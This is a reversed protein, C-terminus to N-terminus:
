IVEFSIIKEFAVYETSAQTGIKKSLGYAHTDTSAHGNYWKVFAAIEDASLQYDHDSSDILTVRLLKNIAAPEPNFNETWRAINSIRFEDIYGNFYMGDYNGFRGITMPYQLSNVAVNGINLSGIEQGDFFLILKSGYRVCAIHHWDTDPIKTSSILDYENVGSTGTMISFVPCGTANLEIRFEEGITGELSNTRADLIIQRVAINNSACKLWFDITFDGSGMNFDSSAPTSIFQNIGNLNLSSGGFKSQDNSVAAGNYATWVKGTEDKFSDDFHLLSVTNTDVQYMIIEELYKKNERINKLSINKMLDIYNLFEVKM